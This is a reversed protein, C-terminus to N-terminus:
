GKQVKTSSIDGRSDIFKRVQMHTGACTESLGYGEIVRISRREWLNHVLETSLPAAASVLMRISSLDYRDAITSKALQLIILPVVHIYTIRHHRVAQCFAKLRFQEMVVVQLGNYISSHVVAMLGTLM